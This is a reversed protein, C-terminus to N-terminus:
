TPGRPVSIRSDVEAASGAEDVEAQVDETTRWSSAFGADDDVLLLRM